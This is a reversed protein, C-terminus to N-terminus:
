WHILPCAAGGLAGGLIAGYIVGRNSKSAVGAAAGVGAASGTILLCGGARRTSGWFGPHSKAHENDFKKKWDDREEATKAKEAECGLRGIESQDCSLLRKGLTVSQDGTLVTSPADPTKDGRKTAAAIEEPTPDRVIVQGPLQREIIHAAQQPTKLADKEKEKDDLQKATDARITKLDGELQKLQDTLVANKGDAAADARLQNRWAWFGLLLALIAVGAVIVKWEGPVKREAALIANRVESIDVKIDEANM